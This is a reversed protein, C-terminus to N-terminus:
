EAKQSTALSRLKGAEFSGDNLDIGLKEAEL